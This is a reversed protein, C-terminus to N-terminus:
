QIITNELIGIAETVNLMIMRLSACHLVDPSVSGPLRRVQGIHSSCLHIISMVMINNHYM